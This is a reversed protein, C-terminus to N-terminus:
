RPQRLRALNLKGGFLDVRDAAEELVEVGAVVKGALHGTLALELDIGGEGLDVLGALLEELMGADVGQGFLELDGVQAGEGGGFDM